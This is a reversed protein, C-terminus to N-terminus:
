VLANMTPLFALNRRKATHYVSIYNAYMQASKTSRFCGSIKMKNKSHRLPRESDNNHHPVEFKLCTLIKHKHKNMQKFFALTEKHKKDLTNIASEILNTLQNYLQKITLIKQKVPLKIKEVYWEKWVSIIKYILKLYKKSLVSKEADILYKLNRVLHVLCIQKARSPIKLQSGLRDSIWIGNFKEGIVDTISDYRRNDTVNILVDQSNQFIWQYHKKTNVDIPTEDSGIQNSNILRNTIRQICPELQKDLRLLINSISGQSLDLKYEDKMNQQTREYSGFNLHLLNSVKLHLNKGFSIWSSVYEPFEGKNLKGCKCMIEMQHYETTITKVPPIEIQQRKTGVEGDGTLKEGCCSCTDPHLQIVSDPNNNWKRTIGKHGVQGGPKLGSKKRSSFIKKKGRKRNQDQSPPISSNSSNKKPQKLKDELDALRQELDIRAKHEELVLDALKDKSLDLLKKKKFLTSAKPLKM